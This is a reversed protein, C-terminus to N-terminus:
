TKWVRKIINDYFSLGGGGPGARNRKAQAAAGAQRTEDRQIGTASAFDLVVAKVGEGSGARLAQSAASLEELMLADPQGALVIRVTQAESVVRLAQYAQQM